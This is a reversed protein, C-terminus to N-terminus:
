GYRHPREMPFANPLHFVETRDGDHILVEVIDFRVPVLPNGIQRLYDLATRTLLRRKRANVAAAPRLWGGAARTKVEVFVVSPGDRMVLDIEGRGSRFNAALLRLGLSQLHRRAADEGQEGRLLHEPRAKKPALLALFRRWANM